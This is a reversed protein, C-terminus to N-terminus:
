LLYILSDHDFLARCYGKNNANIFIAAPQSDIDGEYINYTFEQDKVRVDRVVEFNM